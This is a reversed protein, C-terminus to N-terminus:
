DYACVKALPEATQCTSSAATGSSDMGGSNNNNTMMTTTNAPRPSLPNVSHVSDLLNGGMKAASSFAGGAAAAAGGLLWSPVAQTPARVSKKRSLSSQSESGAASGAASGDNAVASWSPWFSSSSADSDGDLLEGM